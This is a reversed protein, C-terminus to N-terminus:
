FPWRRRCAAVVAGSRGDDDRRQGPGGRRRAPPAAAPRRQGPHCVGRPRDYRWGSARQRHRRRRGQTDVLPGGSNGPNISADIQLLKRDKRDVIGAVTGRTIKVGEGLLDSLPFGIVRVEQGMEVQELELLGICPLSAAEIKLLALDHQPDYATVKAPYTKKDARSSDADGRPRLACTVLVGAPEVVFATGTAEDGADEGTLPGPDTSTPEYTVIDFVAPTKGAVTAEFRFQCEYVRGM